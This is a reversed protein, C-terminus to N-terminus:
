EALNGAYGSAGVDEFQEDTLTKMTYAAKLNAIANADMGSLDMDTPLPPLAAQPAGPSPQRQPSAQGPRWDKLEAYSEPDSSYIQYAADAATIRRAKLKTIIQVIKESHARFADVDKQLWPSWKAKGELESLKDNNAQVIGDFSREEPTYSTSGYGGSPGRDYWGSEANLNHARPGRLQDETETKAELLGSEAIIKQIKPDMSRLIDATRASNYDIRSPSETAKTNANIAAAEANMRAAQKGMRSLEQEKQLREFEAIGSLLHPAVMEQLRPDARSPADKGILGAMKAELEVLKARREFTRDDRDFNDKMTQDFRQQDIVQQQQRAAQETYAKRMMLEYISTGINRGM